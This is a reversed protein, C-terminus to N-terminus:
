SGLPSGLAVWLLIGTGVPIVLNDDGLGPVVELLTVAVAVGLVGWGGVTLWLVVSAVLFFTLSGQVSGKGLPITGVTRGVVSAAPDALALVLISASAYPQPFLAYAILGGVLYWTSSAVGRHERPSALAQFLRFFARNVSPTRLRVLDLGLAVALLTSLIGLTVPRSFGVAPPGLAMILGSAAHFVRRWPQLGETRAVLAEVESEPPPGDLEQTSSM